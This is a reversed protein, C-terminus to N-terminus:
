DVESEVTLKGGHLDVIEKAISLGLGMGKGGQRVRYFPEFIHPLHESSIGTGSDRVEIVVCDDGGHGNDGPYVQLRIEGGDSTYHIANSVLNTVVQNLRTPDGYVRLPKASEDFHLRIQKKDAEPRQLLLVDQIIDNVNLNVRRLQIVGNE